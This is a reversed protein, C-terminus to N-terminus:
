ASESWCIEEKKSYAFILKFAFSTHNQIPPKTSTSSGVRCTSIAYNITFKCCNRKFFMRALFWCSPSRFPERVSLISSQSHELEAMKNSRHSFKSVSLPIQKIVANWQETMATKQPILGRVQPILVYAQTRKVHFCEERTHLRAKRSSKSMGGADQWAILIDHRKWSQTKCEPTTPSAVPVKICRVTDIRQVLDYEVPHLM